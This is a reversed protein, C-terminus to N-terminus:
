GERNFDIRALIGQGGARPIAAAAIMEADKVAIGLADLAGVSNVGLREVAFDFDGRIWERQFGDFGNAGIGTDLDSEGNVVVAFLRVRKRKGGRLAPIESDDIGGTAHDVGVRVIMSEKLGDAGGHDIVVVLQNIRLADSEIVHSQREIGAHIGHLGDQGIIGLDVRGRLEGDLGSAHPMEVM